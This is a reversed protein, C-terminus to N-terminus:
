FSLTVCEPVITRNEPKHTDAYPNCIFQKGDITYKSYNHHHGHIILDLNSQMLTESLDTTFFPRFVSKEFEPAISELMTAYHTVLVQPKDYPKRLEKQIFKLCQDYKEKYDDLTIKEGDLSILNFDNLEVLNERQIKRVAMAVDQLDYDGKPFREMLQVYAEGFSDRARNLKSEMKGIQISEEVSLNNEIDSFLTSGIFKVGKIYCVDNNLLHLNPIAEAISEWHEVVKTIDSNYFEHNGLVYIVDDYQDCCDRVFDETQFELGLGIDGALVLVDSGNNKIFMTQNIFELHIDSVIDIKLQNLM